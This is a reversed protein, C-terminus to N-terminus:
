STQIRPKPPCVELFKHQCYNHVPLLQIGPLGLFTPVLHVHSSSHPGVVSHSHAPPPAHPEMSKCTSDKTRSEAHEGGGSGRVWSLTSMATCQCGFTSRREETCSKGRSVPILAPVKSSTKMRRLLGRVSVATLIQCSQTQVTDLPCSLTAQPRAPSLSVRTPLLITTYPSGLPAISAARRRRPSGVGRGPGVLGSGVAQGSLTLSLRLYM